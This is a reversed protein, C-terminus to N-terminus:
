KSAALAAAIPEEFTREWWPVSAVLMPSAKQPIVVMVGFPLAQLEAVSLTRKEGISTSLSAKGWSGDSSRSVRREEHDGIFASLETLFREDKIGGGYVVCSNTMMDRTSDEGWIRKAQTFSQLITTIIISRSGYHSYKNALEGWKVTNAAEDLPCVLPVRLRGGPQSEGYEEAADMLTVLLALTLASASTPGEKSLLYMTPRGGQQSDAIFADADFRRKGPRPTVWMAPVEHELAAIMQQANGFVGSRTRSTLEYQAQLANAKREWGHRRLLEVPYKDTENAAWEVIETIPLGECCAALLWGSVLRQGGESFMDKQGETMGADDRFLRALGTAAADWEDRPRRRIYDLPDFFWDPTDSSYIRQPDFVFVEGVARRAAVSDDVTDRKNSSTIVGGPASLIQPLVQTSTKGRRAAWLQTILTEYDAWVEQGTRIEKGLLVGPSGGPAISVKMRSAQGAVSKKSMSSIDSKSAMYKAAPLLERGKKKGRRSVLLWAAVVGVTAVMVSVVVIGIIEPTSIIVRGKAIAVVLAIPNIPVAQEAGGFWSGMKIGALAILWVVAVAGFAVALARDNGGPQRANRVNTAM